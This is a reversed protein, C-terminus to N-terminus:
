IIRSLKTQFPCRRVPSEPTRDKAMAIALNLEPRSLGSALAAHKPVGWVKTQAFKVKYFPFVNSGFINLQIPLIIFFNCHIRFVVTLVLM